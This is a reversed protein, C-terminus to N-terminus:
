SCVAQHILCEQRSGQSAWMNLCQSIEIYWLGWFTFSNILFSNCLCNGLCHEKYHKVLYLHLTNKWCKLVVAVYQWRLQEGLSIGELITWYNVMTKKQSILFPPYCGLSARRWRCHLRFCLSDAKMLREKHSLTEIEKYYQLRRAVLQFQNISYTILCLYFYITCYLYLWVVQRFLFVMKGNSTRPVTDLKDVYLIAYFFVNLIM